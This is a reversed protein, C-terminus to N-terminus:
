YIINYFFFFFKNYHLTRVFTKLCDWDDVLPQGSARVDVIITSGKEEGFLISSIMHVSKDVYERHAIEVELEKQAKLKDESGDSASQLQFM